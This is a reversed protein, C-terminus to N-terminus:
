RWRWRQDRGWLPQRKGRRGGTGAVITYPVTVPPLRAFFKQDRLLQGAEGNIVRYPWLHGLRRALRPPRNPTGLMILQRPPPHITPVAGLAVRLILGGLSHGVLGYPEGTAALEALHRHVRSCVTAFPELAAVYGATRPRHGARRLFRALSTLSLPTRAMGHVLLLHM